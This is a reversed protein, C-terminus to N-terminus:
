SKDFVIKQFKDGKKILLDDNEGVNDAILKETAIAQQIITNADMGRRTALSKLAEINEPSLEVEYKETKAM